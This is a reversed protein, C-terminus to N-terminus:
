RAGSLANILMQPPPCGSPGEDSKYLRCCRGFPGKTNAEPDIDVGEVRISPSGLFRLEQAEEDDHVHVERIDADIGLQDVTADILDRAAHHSPCGEFYLLEIKM